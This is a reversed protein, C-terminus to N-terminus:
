KCAWFFIWLSMLTLRGTRETRAKTRCDNVHKPGLGGLLRIFDIILFFTSQTVGGLCANWELLWILPWQTPLLRREVATPKHQYKDRGRKDGPHWHGESRDPRPWALYTSPAAAEAPSFHSMRQLRWPEHRSAAEAGRCSDPFEQKM